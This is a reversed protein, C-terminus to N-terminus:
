RRAILDSRQAADSRFGHAGDDSDAGGAGHSTKARGNVDSLSRFALMSKQDAKFLTMLRSNAEAHAQKQSSM